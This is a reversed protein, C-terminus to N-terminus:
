RSLRRLALGSAALGAGGILVVVAQFGTFPLSESVAEAFTPNNGGGGGIDGLVEGPPREEDVPNHYQLSRPSAAAATSALALAGATTVSVILKRKSVSPVRSSSDAAAV